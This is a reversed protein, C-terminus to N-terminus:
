AAVTMLDEVRVFRFGRALLGEIIPPLAAVTQSRDGGGDHLLVVSGPRAQELVTRAITQAGPMAWDDPAVDWLVVTSARDALWGMVEPTRSGYPPRFLTPAAGGGARAIADGTRDIQEHLQARSLEPLFPHSWTHNGMSHRQERMRVLDEAHAGANMGVCFFTAPVGYRELVDLVQGTYPPLPGDDFTLAIEKRDRTGHDLCRGAGTLAAVQATSAAIGSELDAERGTQTGRNRELEALASLDRRALDALVGAAVSGFLPREPLLDPDARYVKLGAAMMRGDLIGNTSEVVTVLPGTRGIDRLHEIMDETRGPAFRLASAARRGDEDVVDIEYGTASWSIGSYLM